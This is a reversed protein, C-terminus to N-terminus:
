REKEETSKIYSVILEIDEKTLLKKFEMVEVVKAMYLLVRDVSKMDSYASKEWETM